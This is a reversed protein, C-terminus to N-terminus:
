RTFEFPNTQQRCLEKILLAGTGVDGLEQANVILADAGPSSAVFLVADIAEFGLGVRAWRGSELLGLALFECLHEELLGLVIAKVFMEPGGREDGLQDLLLEVHLIVGIVNACQQM